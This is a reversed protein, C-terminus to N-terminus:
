YKIIYAPKSIAKMTDIMHKTGKSKGDWFAVLVDSVKAMERNRVYGASRGYKIWNAPYQKVPIGNAKALRYGIMDAGVAMGSVIAWQSEHPLKGEKILDNLTAIMLDEDDFDRGGAILVNM